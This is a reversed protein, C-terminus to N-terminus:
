TNVDHSVRKGVGTYHSINVYMVYLQNDDELNQSQISSPIDFCGDTEVRSFRKYM